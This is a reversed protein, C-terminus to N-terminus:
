RILPPDAVLAGQQAAALLRDLRRLLRARSPEPAATLHPPWALLLMTLEAAVVARRLVADDPIGRAAAYAARMAARPPRLGDFEARQWLLALDEPGRGPGAEQWDIWVFRDAPDVLINGLHWDGHRLCVPLQALAADLRDFRAWVPALVPSYGLSAWSRAATAIEAPTARHEPKGAPWAALRAAAGGHLAGLQTALRTWRWVSWQAARAPAGAPELLLCSGAPHPVEAILRPVPVPVRPALDRYFAAERRTAVKLIFSGDATTLRHVASGSAGATLARVEVLESEDRGFLSWWRAAGVSTV